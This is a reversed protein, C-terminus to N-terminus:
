KKKEPYSAGFIVKLGELSTEKEIKQFEEETGEFYIETLAECSAFVDKGIRKLTKPLYIARLEKNKNAPSLFAEDCLEEVDYWLLRSPVYFVDGYRARCKTIYLTGADTKYWLGLKEHLESSTFYVYIFIGAFFIAIGWFLDSTVAVFIGVALSVAAALVVLLYFSNFKSLRIPFLKEPDKKKKPPAEESLAQANETSETNEAIETDAVLNDDDRNLNDQM